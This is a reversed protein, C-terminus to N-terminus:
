NFVVGALLAAYPSSRGQVRSAAFVLAIAGLSGAFAFLSPASVRALGPLVALEGLTGLGLAISLTAGVAAGGSVGLVFPDALPNPVLAQLTSGSFALAAGVIAGLLARPLRLSWFIVADTSEPDSWAARLSIPQEGFRVAIAFSVLAVAVLGGFLAVARAVTFRVAM